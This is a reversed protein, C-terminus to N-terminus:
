LSFKATWRIVGSQVAFVPLVECCIQILYIWSYTPTLQWSFATFVPMYLILPSVAGCSVKSFNSAKLECCPEWSFPSAQNLRHSRRNSLVICNKLCFVPILGVTILQLLAMGPNEVLIVVPVSAKDGRASWACSPLLCIQKEAIVDTCGAWIDSKLQRAGLSALSSCCCLGTSAALGLNWPFPVKFIPWTSNKCGLGTHKNQWSGSLSWELGWCDWRLFCILSIM